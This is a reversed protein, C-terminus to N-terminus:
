KNCYKEGYTLATRIFTYAM